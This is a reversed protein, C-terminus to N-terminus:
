SLFILGATEPRQAESQTVYLGRTTSMSLAVQSVLGRLLLFFIKTLFDNNKFANQVTIPLSIMCNM